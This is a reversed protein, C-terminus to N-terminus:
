VAIHLNRAAGRRALATGCRRLRPAHYLRPITPISRRVSAASRARCRTSVRAYRPPRLSGRFTAIWRLGRDGRDRRGVRAAPAIAPRDMSLALLLTGSNLTTSQNILIATPAAFGRVLDADAPAPQRLHRELRRRDRKPDGGCPGYRSLPRLYVADREAAASPPIRQHRGSHGQEAGRHSCRSSSTTRRCGSRPARRRARRRAPYSNRYHPHPVVARARDRLEPYTEVVLDLSRAHARDACRGQPPVESLVTGLGTRAAADRIRAAHHKTSLGCSRAAEAASSTWRACRTIRRSSRWSLRTIPPADGFSPRRGICTSSMPLPERMTWSSYPEARVGEREFESYVM